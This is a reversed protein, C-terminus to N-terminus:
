GIARTVRKRRRAARDPHCRPHTLTDPRADERGYYAISEGCRKCDEWVLVVPNGTSNAHRSWAVREHVDAEPGPREGPDHLLPDAVDFPSPEVHWGPPLPAAPREDAEDAYPDRWGESMAGSVLVEDPLTM